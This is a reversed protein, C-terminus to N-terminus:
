GEIGMAGAARQLAELAGEFDYGNVQSAFGDFAEAGGFLAHLLDKERALGETTGADSESLLRSWRTVLDRLAARDVASAAVPPAEVLPAPMELLPRLAVSLDAL